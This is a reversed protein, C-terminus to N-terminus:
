TSTLYPTFKQQIGSSISLKTMDRSKYEGGNYSRLLRVRNGTQPEAFAVFEAVNDAVEFKNKLLLM